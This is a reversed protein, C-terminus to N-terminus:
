TRDIHQGRTCSRWDSHATRSHGPETRSNHEARRFVRSVAAGATPGPRAETRNRDGGLAAHAATARAYRDDTPEETECEGAGM